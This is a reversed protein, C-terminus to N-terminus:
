SRDVDQALAEAQVLDVPRTGARLLERAGTDGQLARLDAFWDRPLLAPVGAIGAYASAVAVTPACRWRDLLRQLHTSVLAPQDLLLVLVGDVLPDLAELGARLSAAMGEQAAHCIIRRVRERAGVPLEQGPQRVVLFESPCTAAGARVVHEILTGGAPHACLAKDFGLRRSFGAALLLCAHRPAVM